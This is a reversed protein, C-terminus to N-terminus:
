KILSMKSTKVFTGAMLRYFYIGSTVPQGSDTRADWVVCYTGGSQKKDLLTRVKQGITNYIEMRVFSEKPLDYQIETTPNFPNPYNQRLAYMTPLVKDNSSVDTLLNLVPTAGSETWTVGYNSRVGNIVLTVEEGPKCGEDVSTNPNDGYIAIGIVGDALAHAEGCVNQEKDIAQIFTGKPVLSGGIVCHTSYAFVASPLAAESKVPTTGGGQAIKSVITVNNVNMTEPYRLTSTAGTQVFYGKGEHMTKFTASMPFAEFYESTPSGSGDNIFDLVALPLQPLSSLAWEIPHERTPIYGVFNYGPHLDIPISPYVRLGQVSLVDSAADKRLKVFYGKGISTTQMPNYISLEPIYFNFMPTSVGDNQYELVVQVKNKAILDSFIYAISDNLPKVNWSVANYGQVVPITLIKETSFYINYEKIAPPFAATFQVIPQGYRLVANSTSLSFMLTDGDQVGGEGELMSVAYNKGKNEPVVSGTAVVSNNLKRHVIFTTGALAATDDIAM